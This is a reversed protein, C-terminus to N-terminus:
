GPFLHLRLTKGRVTLDLPSAARKLGSLARVLATEGVQGVLNKVLLRCVAYDEQLRERTTKGSRLREELRALEREDRPLVAEGAVSQGSLWLALGEDLWRPCNRGAVRRILLHVLEHALTGELDELKALSRAPQTLIEGDGVLAASIYGPRGSGTRWCHMDACIRVRVRSKVGFLVDLDRKRGCIIKAIRVATEEEPGIVEVRQCEQVVAPAAAGFPMALLAAPLLILPALAM